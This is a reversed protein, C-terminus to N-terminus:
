RTTMAPVPVSALLRELAAEMDERWSVATRLELRMRPFRHHQRVTTFGVASLFGEALLCAAEDGPTPGNGQRVAPAADGRSEALAFTEIAKVGRRALDKAAGQILMRAIGGDRFRPLIRLSMLLVADASVPSTPFSQARPVFGPPAYLVHGAPEDDVYALRGCSGWELLTSSLWAEKEFEPDGAEVARRASVPDLEWLVCRRCPDSLDGLNDLTLPAVRRTM